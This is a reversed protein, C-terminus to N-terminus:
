VDGRSGRCAPAGTRQQRRRLSEARYWQKRFWRGLATRSRRPAVGLKVKDVAREIERRYRRALVEPGLSEVMPAITKRRVM